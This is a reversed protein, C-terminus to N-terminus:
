KSLKELLLLLSTTKFSFPTLRPWCKIIKFGSFKLLGCLGEDTFVTRHTYDDFYRRWAFRFNPQLIFFRGNPQLVRFVEKLTQPIEDATLHELINSALVADVSKDQVISLDTVSGVVPTVDSGAHRCVIDSIDVAYREPASVANIWSCYGAGIEVVRKTPTPLWPKFFRALEEWVVTRRKDPSFRNSFYNSDYM